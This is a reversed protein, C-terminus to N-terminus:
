GSVLEAVNFLGDGDADLYNLTFGELYNAVGIESPTAILQYTTYAQAPVTIAFIVLFSGLVLLPVRNRVAQFM